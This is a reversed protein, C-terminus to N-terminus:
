LPLRNYRFFFFLIQPQHIIIPKLAQNKM